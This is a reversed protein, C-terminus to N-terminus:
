KKEDELAKRVLHQLTLIIGWKVGMMILIRRGM